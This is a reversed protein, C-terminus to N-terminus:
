EINKLRPLTPENAKSYRGKYGEGSMTDSCKHIYLQAVKTRYQFEVTNPSFNVMELTIKGSFGPEIQGDCLHATVLWRALSGKTQLFGLYGLPMSYVDASCALVSQGPYISIKGNEMKMKKFYGNGSVSDYNVPQDNKKPAYFVNDLEISLSFQDFLKPDCIDLQKVLSELNNGIIIM